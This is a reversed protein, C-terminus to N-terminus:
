EDAADEDPLDQRHVVSVVDVLGKRLVSTVEVADAARM